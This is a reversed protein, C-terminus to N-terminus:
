KPRQKKKAKRASHGGGLILPKVPFPPFALPGPPPFPELAFPALLSACPPLTLLHVHNRFHNAALTKFEWVRPM